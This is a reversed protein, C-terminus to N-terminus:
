KVLMKQIEEKMKMATKYGSQYCFDLKEVELLGTGDSPVTIVLDAMELSEESIKSGMIDIIKMTLDMMNSEQNVKDSEFTVAIVKDAGQKRLEHVPTNDLIGGDLFYHEKYECPCFVVPFSSSARVAKGVSIDTVYQEEHEKINPLKSTFIYEKATKVDVAPIVLPFNIDSICKIGKKAALENYATEISEGSSLGTISLKKNWVFNGIGSLLQKGDIQAIQAAYRKFLVYIYYPSYGMAYLAAILSGSSTGGIAEVSVNMEELAKLVGSHAIGRIGGGSLAVGIKM